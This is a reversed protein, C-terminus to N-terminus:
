EKRRSLIFQIYDDLQEQEEETLEVGDPLHAAITTPKNVELEEPVVFVGTWENESYLEEITTGLVNAFKEAWEVNLPLIGEEIDDVDSITINLKEAVEKQSVNLEERKTQLLGGFDFVPEFHNGKYGWNEFLEKGNRFATRGLLYDVSVNFYDAVKALTDNDPSRRNQEYMGVTSPSVDIIKALDEQTIGKLLREEKIKDGLM